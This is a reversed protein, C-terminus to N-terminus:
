TTSTMDTGSALEQQMLLELVWHCWELDSNVIQLSRRILIYSSFAPSLLDMAGADAQFDSSYKDRLGELHRLRKQCAVIRDELHRRLEARDGLWSAYVKILMEDRTVLDASPQSLWDRLASLGAETSSYVKKDPKDSQEVLIHEVYGAQEMKSLLPYIQSHKAQWFPQIRLMLDYGSMSERTLVSLLAYALSNM